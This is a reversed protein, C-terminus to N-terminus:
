QVLCQLPSHMCDTCRFENCMWSTLCKMSTEPLSTRQTKQLSHHRSQTSRAELNRGLFLNLPKMDRHIIPHKLGHLYALARGTSIAWSKALGFRPKYFGSVERRQRMYTRLQLQVKSVQIHVCTKSPRNVLFHISPEWTNHRLFRTTGTSFTPLPGVHIKEEKMSAGPFMLCVLQYNSGNKESTKFTNWLKACAFRETQKHRKKNNQEHKKKENTTEPSETCFLM